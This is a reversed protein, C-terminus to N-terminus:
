DKVLGLKEMRLILLLLLSENISLYHKISQKQRISELELNIGLIQYQLWVEGVVYDAAVDM